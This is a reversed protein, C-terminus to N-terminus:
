STHSNRGAISDANAASTALTLALAAIPLRM